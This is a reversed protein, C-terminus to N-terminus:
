ARGWEGRLVWSAYGEFENAVYLVPLELGHKVLLFVQGAMVGLM